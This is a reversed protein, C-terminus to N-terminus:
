ANTYTYVSCREDLPNTNGVSYEDVAVATTNPCSTVNQESAKKPKAGAGSSSTSATTVVAKKASTCYWNEAM